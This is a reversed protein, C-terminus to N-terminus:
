CSRDAGMPGGSIFRDPILEEASGPFGPGRPDSRVNVIELSSSADLRQLRRLSFFSAVIMSLLGAISDLPPFGVYTGPFAGGVSGFVLASPPVVYGLLYGTTHVRQVLGIRVIDGVRAQKSNRITLEQM